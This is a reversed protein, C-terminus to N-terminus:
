LLSEQRAPTAYLRGGAYYACIQDEERQTVQDPQRVPPVNAFQSGLIADVRVRGRRADIKACLIPLLVPRGKQQAPEQPQQQPQPQEPQPPQSPPEEAAEAQQGKGDHLAIELYRVQPESLDVWLDRVTGASEGDAGFVEMGRPDPDRPEVSFGPASRMPVIRPRGELTLDPEDHREAWSGPGVGALMPDGVPRLPAGPWPNTPEAQVPRTDEEEPPAQYTGGHPLAYTKAEPMAPFGVVEVGGARDSELPYGERKDERRLYFILGAFFIWFGYLVIQAVDIYGTIDGTQQM